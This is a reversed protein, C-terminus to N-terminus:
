ISASAHRRHAKSTFTKRNGGATTPYVGNAKGPHQQLLDKKAAERFLAGWEGREAPPPPPTPPPEPEIM